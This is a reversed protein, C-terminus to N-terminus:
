GKLFSIGELLPEVFVKCVNHLGASLQAEKVFLLDASLVAFVDLACVVAWILMCVVAGIILYVVCSISGDVGRLLKVRRLAFNFKRWIKNLLSMAISAIIAMLIGSILGGVVSPIAALEGSMGMSGQMMEVFFMVFKVIPNNPDADAGAVMNSFPLYMALLIVVVNGVKMFLTRLSELFGKKRGKGAILIMLGIVLMDMGYRTALEVLTPMLMEGNEGLPMEYLMTFTDKLMTSNIILVAIMLVVSLITVVNVVGIVGGLFRSILSTGKEREIVKEYENEEEFDYDDDDYPKGFMDLRANKTRAKKKTTRRKGRFILSLIGYIILVALICVIALAFLVIASLDYTEGEATEMSIQLKSMLEAGYTATVAFFTACAAIWVLGGWSVRRASKAFGICFAILLLIGVAGLLIPILPNEGTTDGAATLLNFPMM